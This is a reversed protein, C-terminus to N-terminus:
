SEEVKEYLAGELGQALIQVAVALESRALEMDGRELFVRYMRLHEMADSIHDLALLYAEHERNFLDAIGMAVTPLVKLSVGMLVAYAADAFQAGAGPDGECAVAHRAQSEYTVIERIIEDTEQVANVFMMSRFQENVDDQSM